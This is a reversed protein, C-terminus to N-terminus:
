EVRRKLAECEKESSLVDPIAVGNLRGVIPDPYSPGPATRVLLFLMSFSSTKLTFTSVLYRAVM